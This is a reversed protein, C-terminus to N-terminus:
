SLKKFGIWYKEISNNQYDRKEWFCAIRSRGSDLFRTEKIIKADGGFYKHLFGTEKDLRSVAEGLTWFGPKKSLRPM